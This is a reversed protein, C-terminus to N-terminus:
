KEAENQTSQEMNYLFQKAAKEMVEFFGNLGLAAESVSSSNEIIIRRDELRARLEECEKQLRENERSEELLLELLEARTLKKLERSKEKSEAGKRNM